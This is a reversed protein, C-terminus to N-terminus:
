RFRHSPGTEFLLGFLNRLDDDDFTDVERLPRSSLTPSEATEAEDRLQQIRDNVTAVAKYLNAGTV